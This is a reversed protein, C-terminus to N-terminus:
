GAPKGGVIAHWTSQTTVTFGPTADAWAFDSTWPMRCSLGAFSRSVASTTFNMETWTRNQPSPSMLTGPSVQSGGPEAAPALPLRQRSLQVTHPSPMTWVPSSHSSPLVLLVSAHALLQVIGSNQPSPMTWGLRPSVQSGGPDVAPAFPLMQRPSQVTHPSPMTLPPSAHSSPLVLLVSAQLLVQVVGQETTM